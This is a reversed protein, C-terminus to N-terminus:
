RDNHGILPQRCLRVRSRTAHGRQGVKQTEPLPSTPASAIGALCAVLLNTHAPIRDLEPEVHLPVGMRVPFVAARADHIEVDPLHIVAEM